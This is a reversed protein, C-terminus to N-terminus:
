AGIDVVTGCFSVVAKGVDGSGFAVLVGVNCDFVPLGLGEGFGDATKVPAGVFISEVNGDNTADEIGVCDGVVDFGVRRGVGM